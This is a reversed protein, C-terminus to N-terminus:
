YRGAYLDARSAELTKADETLAGAELAKAKAEGEVMCDEWDGILGGCSELVDGDADKVCFGYVDGDLFHRVTELPASADKIGAFADLEQQNWVMFFVDRQTDFRELRFDRLDAGFDARFISRVASEADKFYRVRSLSSSDVRLRGADTWKWDADMEDLVDTWSYSDDALRLVDLMSEQVTKSENFLVSTRFRDRAFIVVPLDCLVDEWSNFVDWDAYVEVDFRGVQKTEITEM